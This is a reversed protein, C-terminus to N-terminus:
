ATLTLLVLLLLHLLSSWTATRSALTLLVVSPELTTSSFSPTRVVLLDLEVQLHPGNLTSTPTPASGYSKTPRAALLSVWVTMALPGLLDLHEMLVLQVRLVPSPPILGPQVQQVQQGRHGQQVQQGRHGQQGPAM